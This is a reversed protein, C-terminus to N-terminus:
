RWLLADLAALDKMAGEARTTAGQWVCVFLRVCECAEWQPTWLDDELPHIWLPHLSAGVAM